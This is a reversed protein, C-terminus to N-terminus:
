MAHPDKLPTLGDHVRRVIHCIAAHSVGFAKAVAAMTAGTERMRIVAEYDVTRRVGFRAGRAKAAV